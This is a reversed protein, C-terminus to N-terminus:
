AHRVLAAQRAPDNGTLVLPVSPPVLTSFLRGFNAALQDTVVVADVGPQGAVLELIRRVHDEADALMSPALMAAPDLLLGLRAEGHETVSEMGAIGGNEAKKLELMAEMMRNRESLFRLCSPADSVVDAANPRVLFRAPKQALCAAIAQELEKWGKPGWTRPDTQNPDDDLVLHGSRAVLRPSPPTHAWLVPRPPSPILPGAAAAWRELTEAARAGAEPTFKLFSGDLGELIFEM